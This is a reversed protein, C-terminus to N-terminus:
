KQLCCLPLIFEVPIDEARHAGKRVGYRDPGMGKKQLCVEAVRPKKGSRGGQLPEKDAAEPAEEM